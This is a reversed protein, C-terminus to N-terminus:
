WMKSRKRQGTLNIRAPFTKFGTSLYKQEGNFLNRNNSDNCNNNGNNQKSLSSLYFYTMRLFLLCILSPQYFVKEEKCVRVYKLAYVRARACVCM